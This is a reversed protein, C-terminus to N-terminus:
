ATDLVASWSRVMQGGRDVGIVALWALHTALDTALNRVLYVLFALLARPLSLQSRHLPM